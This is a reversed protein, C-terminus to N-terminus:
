RLRIPLYIPPQGARQVRLLVAERNETKAQRVVAELDAMTALMRYNASLIIDRRQLGKAGADSSSDVGTVVVGRTDESVGLQRAIQPTLPVAAVGLSKQVLGATQAQKQQQQQGDSNDGFSNDDQQDPDFSQNALEEETPRKGVVANVTMPKGNRVLDIAVTKGPATNAVIFSLTQDPKVDKGDVRTVVDGAQIGAKAAGAGPEVSQIFEGRNKPLGLSAALDDNIPQIRVGLYGREIVQGSKLKQVIPAAIEAPIAFGIGVSGGTPSYIANNIGIVNGAMDFMPGGSNGRNISADTQLYRDYASGSGTARYVASIIGQTVTGGLGFPNGIAIVWDGVRAKRSDGFKVFPFPKTGTIKLVALDSAADKGVLKAPYETGDPTTVSISEVEGQGDATIVHNNTVVYGDASIIFGSGLSQAERTGGGQGGQGGGFLDGFPTGAFPNNNQVKVRQRTSINVVAPQLQATLDAFSSPAGQRPTIAQIRSSDNQAVQAGAPFGTALTLASGALLLASTVGYAYRM